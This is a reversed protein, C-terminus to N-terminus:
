HKVVTGSIFCYWESIGHDSPGPHYPYSKINAADLNVLLNDTIVKPGVISSM